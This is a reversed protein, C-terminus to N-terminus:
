SKEGTQWWHLIDGWVSFNTCADCWLHQVYIRIHLCAPKAETPGAFLNQKWPGLIRTLPSVISSLHWAPWHPATPVLDPGGLDGFPGKIALVPGKQRKKITKEFQTTRYSSYCHQILLANRQSARSVGCALSLFLWRFALNDSHSVFCFGSSAFNFHDLRPLFPFMNCCFYSHELLGELLLKCLYMNWWRWFWRQWRCGADEGGGGWHRTTRAAPVAFLSASM